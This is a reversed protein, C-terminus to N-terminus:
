SFPRAARQSALQHPGDRATLLSLFVPRRVCASVALPREGAFVSAEATYITTFAWLGWSTFVLPLSFTKVEHGHAIRVKVRLGETETLLSSALAGNSKISLV